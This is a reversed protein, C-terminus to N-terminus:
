HLHQKNDEKEAMIAEFTGLSWVVQGIAVHMVFDNVTDEQDRMHLWQRYGKEFTKLLACQVREAGASKYDFVPTPKEEKYVADIVSGVDGHAPDFMALILGSRHEVVVPLRILSM